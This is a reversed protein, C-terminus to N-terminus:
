AYSSSAPGAPAPQETLARTVAAASTRMFIADSTVNVMRFGRERWRRATDISGCHIGPVVGHRLCAALIGEVIAAHEDGFADASTAMGHTIALDNPGVYVADVGPVSLIEDAAAVGAATEIMVAVVVRRNGVAPSYGDVGLAARIPGWSRFGEPPYRSARVAQRAEEASNVMPVIVGQAGADLAKMLDGPANWPVRVFAPTGTISLAQLMLAMQDYGVLGHQADICVWDFGIRGMLEASFASPVVCWGGVTMGGRDWLERLTTM